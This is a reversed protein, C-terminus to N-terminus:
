KFGLCLEFSCVGYDQASAFLVVLFEIYDVM